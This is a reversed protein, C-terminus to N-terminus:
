KRNSVVYLPRNQTEKYIFGIYFSLLGIAILIIGVLFLLLTALIAPGSFHLGWSHIYRDIFMVSGLVSALITILVGLYGTLRLPFLSHAIFSEAALKVLKWFGYAAEGNQRKPTDFYIYDRRFGLWDILGRTMRNCESLRIFEDVVKRDLLRYDTARPVIEVEASIANIIKYYLRSGANKIFSDSADNNRVGIVVEAGAQWKAIFEPLHQPPHQLDVDMMIVADGAAENLGASTAAEKGFNRSFEIVSVRDSASAVKELLSQTADTSGDNVFLVTARYGPLSDLIPFLVDCFPGVSAEENYVPVVISITKKYFSM